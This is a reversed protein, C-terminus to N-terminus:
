HSDLKRANNMDSIDERVPGGRERVLWDEEPSRITSLLVETRVKRAEVVGPCMAIKNHHVWYRFLYEEKSSSVADQIWATDTKAAGFDVIDDLLVERLHLVAYTDTLTSWIVVVLGHEQKEHHSRAVLEVLCQDLINLVLDGLLEALSMHRPMDELREVDWGRDVQLLDLQRDLLNDATM